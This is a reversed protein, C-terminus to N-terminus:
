KKKRLSLLVLVAVIILVAGAIALALYLSNNKLWENFPSHAPDGGFTKLIM